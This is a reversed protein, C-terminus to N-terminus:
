CRNAYTKMMKKYFKTSLIKNRRECAVVFNCFLVEKFCEQFVKFWRLFVQSAETFFAPFFKLFSQLVGVFCEASVMLVEKFFM